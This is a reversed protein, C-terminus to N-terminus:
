NLHVCQPDGRLAMQRFAVEAKLRQLKKYNRRLQELRAEMDVQINTWTMREWLEWDLEREPLCFEWLGKAAAPDGLETWPLSLTGPLTSISDLLSDRVEMEAQLLPGGLGWRSLSAMVEPLPRRVVALRVQPMAERLLRWGFMSGTECTGELGARFSGLFDGVTECEIGIDHGVKDGQSALWHAMWASRSRPLSFIVFSM